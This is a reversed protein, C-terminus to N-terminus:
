YAEYSKEEILASKYEINIRKKVDARKDNLYYVSRALEIFESGFDKARELIRLKDEVDWLEQNVKYLEGFIHSDVKLPFIPAEPYYKHIAKELLDHDTRINALKDNNKIHFLKIKLITLRDIAEGISIPIQINEM